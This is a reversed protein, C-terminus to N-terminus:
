SAVLQKAGPLEYTVEKRNPNIKFNEVEFSLKDIISTLYQLEKKSLKSKLFNELRETQIKINKSAVAGQTTLAINYKRRNGVPSQRKVLKLKELGDIITVVSAPKLQLKSAIEAQSIQEQANIISLASAQSYSLALPQSKFGIVKQLKKSLGILHFTLTHKM